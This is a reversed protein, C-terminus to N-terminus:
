WVVYALEISLYIPDYDTFLNEFNKPSETLATINDIALITFKDKSGSMWLDIDKYLKNEYYFEFHEDQLYPFIKFFMIQHTVKSLAEEFEFENLSESKGDFGYQIIDKKIEQGDLGNYKVVLSEKTVKKKYLTEARNLDEWSSPDTTKLNDIQKWREKSHLTTIFTTKGSGFHQNLCILTLDKDRSHKNDLLDTFFKTTAKENNIYHFDDELRINSSTDITYKKAKLRNFFEPVSLYINFNHDFGKKFEEISLKDSYEKSTDM